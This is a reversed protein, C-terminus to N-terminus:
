PHYQPIYLNKQVAEYSINEGNQWKEVCKNNEIMILDNEKVGFWKGDEEPLLKFWVGNTFYVVAFKDKTPGQGSEEINNHTIDKKYHAPTGIFSTVMRKVRVYNRNTTFENVEKRAKEYSKVKLHTQEYKLCARQKQGIIELYNEMLKNNKALVDTIRHGIFLYTWANCDLKDQRPMHVLKHDATMFYLGIVAAFIMIIYKKKM